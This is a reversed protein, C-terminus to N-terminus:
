AKKTFTLTAYQSNVENFKVEFPLGQGNNLKTGNPFCRYHTNLSFSQGKHFLDGESTFEGYQVTNNGSSQIIQILEYGRNAINTSDYIETNTAALKIYNGENEVISLDDIEEQTLFAKGEFAGDSNWHKGKVLRADVHYAIVGPFRLGGRGDYDVFADLRNLGTPTYLEFIIYEDFATGNWSSGLIICDGSSEFPRISIVCSNSVVFPDVWGFSFKTFADHDLINNAMMMKGGSPNGEEHEDGYNYYDDAGLIHGMEHILTHCDVGVGEAVGKYFFDYSAWFYDYGIPSDPNGEKDRTDAYAFAWFLGDMKESSIERYYKAPAKVEHRKAEYDHCSYVMLCADIYGDGDHDFATCDDGSEKKYAEVAKEMAMEPMSSPDETYRSDQAALSDFWEMPTSAAVYPSAIEFEFNLKGYSSKAYFSKLSEWYHTDEASGEFAIRIDNLRKEGFPSDSFEIPLVLFKYTGVSPVSSDGNSDAIKKFNLKEYTGKAKFFGEGEDPTTSTLSPFSEESYSFESSSSAFPRFAFSMCSTLCLTCLPLILNAIRKM